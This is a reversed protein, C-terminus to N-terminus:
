FLKGLIGAMSALGNEKGLAGSMVSQILASGENGHKKKQQGLIALLLPAVMIMIKKVDAAPVGSEKAISETSAETKAGLLHQLIKASDAKDIGGLFSTFDKTDKEGHLSLARDFSDATDSGSAQKSAGKLLMPLLLQLVTSVQKSSLGTNQSLASTSNSSMLLKMLTTIDM